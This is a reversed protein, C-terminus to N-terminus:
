RIVDSRKGSHNLTEKLRKLEVVIIVSIIILLFWSGIKGWHVVQWAAEQNPYKWVKLYTSINEAIWIFFGILLYSVIMPMKYARSGVTFSVVARGFVPLLAIMLVYRIDYIYHNTFFNLYIAASLGISLVPPPWGTITLQFRRWAQCVYSAVSAYMFGSYIPVGGFKLWGEAPYSWSGIHVKYLELVLGILHFVIIVKLEDITELKTRILIWQMMICVLLLFDYRPIFPLEVFHTLAMAAFIVVAFMCSLAQNWGFRILQLLKEKMSSRVTLM